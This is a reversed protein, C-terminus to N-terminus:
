VISTQVGAGQDHLAEARLRGQECCCPNPGRLLEPPVASADTHQTHQSDKGAGTAESEDCSGAETEAAAATRQLLPPM